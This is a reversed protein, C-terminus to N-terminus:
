QYIAIPRLIMAPAPINIDSADIEVGIEGAPEIFNTIAENIVEMELPTPPVDRIMRITSEVQDGTLLAAVQGVITFTGEINEHGGLLYADQLGAVIRPEAVGGPRLYMPLHTPKDRGGMWDVMM